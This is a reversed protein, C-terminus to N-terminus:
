VKSEIIKKLIFLLITTPLLVKNITSCLQQVENFITHYTEKSKRNCLCYVLPFMHGKVIGHLRYLQYFIRPFTGDGAILQSQTLNVLAETAFILIRNPNNAGSDYRM